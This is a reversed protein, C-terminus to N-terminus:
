SFWFGRLFYFSRPLLLSVSLFLFRSMVPCSMVRFFRLVWFFFLCIFYRSLVFYLGLFLFREVWKISRSEDDEMMSQTLSLSDALSNTAKPMGLIGLGARHQQQQHYVPSQSQSISQSHSYSPGAAYQFFSSQASPSVSTPRPNEPSSQNSSFFLFSFFFGCVLM